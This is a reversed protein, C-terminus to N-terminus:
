TTCEWDTLEPTRAYGTTERSIEASCPQIWYTFNEASLLGATSLLWIAGRPMM